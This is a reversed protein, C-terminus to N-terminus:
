TGGFWGFLGGSSEKKPENERIYEDLADTSVSDAVLVGALDFFTPKCPLPITVPPDDALVPGADLDDIRQWLPRNTTKIGTSAGVVEIYRNAEMRCQMTGIKTKLDQLGPLYDDLECAAVEEAARRQLVRAQHLLVLVQATTGNLVSEYLCALHFCRFARIRVVHAQAELWHPDDEPNYEDNAKGDVVLDAVAQANQQLADYFHFLDTASEEATEALSDEQHKRQIQLKHYTFFSKFTALESRKATVAPGAPLSAYRSTESAVIGLADDLDALLQLFVKEDKQSSENDLVEEM